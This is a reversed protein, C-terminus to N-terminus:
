PGAGGSRVDRWSVCRGGVEEAFFAYFADLWALFRDVEAATRVHPTKGPVLSPSHYSVTFVRHGDALMFRVLRKAEPLAMDEPSLRIPEPMGPRSFSSAPWSNHRRALQGVLAGTVPIEMLRRERDVWYPQASLGWHDGGDEGGPQRCPAVSTDALYGLRKLVDATRPGLGCPHTRYIRPAEGFAKALEETLRRAKELELLVPLHDDGTNRDHVTGDFPPTMWPNMQAGVDCLGSQLLERLPARGSDQSAVPYDALYLPKVGHREFVRHALHQAGMSTVDLADRSFPRTWDFAEEADVMTVLVPRGDAPPAVSSHFRPDLISATGGLSAEAAPAADEMRHIGPYRRAVDHMGFRARVLAQGAAGLRQRLAPDAALRHVADVYGRPTDFLHGTEGEVVFSGSVGPPRRMVVPLGHALAEPLLVGSGEPWCAFVLIDAAAFWPHPDLQEGVFRVRRELGFGRVLDELDAVYDPELPPGLLLLHARPAGALVAPLAEVLFMPDERRCLGGAFLLVPDEPELGLLNRTRERAGPLPIAVGCPVLHASLDVGASLTEQLRKPNM